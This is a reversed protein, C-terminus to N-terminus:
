RYRMLGNRAIHAMRLVRNGALKRNPLFTLLMMRKSIAPLLIGQSRVKEGKTRFVGQSIWDAQMPLLLNDVSFADTYRKV